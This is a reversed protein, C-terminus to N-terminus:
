IKKLNETKKIVSKSKLPLIKYKILEIIIYGCLFSLGAQFLSIKTDFIKNM